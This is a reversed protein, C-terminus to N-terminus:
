LDHIKKVKVLRPLKNNLIKELSAIQQNTPFEKGSEWRQLLINSIGVKKSLEIQKLGINNRAQIIIKCLNPPPKLEFSDSPIKQSVIKNYNKKNSEDKKSNFTINNWDQHLM